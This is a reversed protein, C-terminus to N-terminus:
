AFSQFGGWQVSLTKKTTQALVFANTIDENKFESHKGFTLCALITNFCLPQWVTLNLCGELSEFQVHILQM